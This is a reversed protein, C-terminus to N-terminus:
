IALNCSLRRQSNRGYQATPIGDTGVQEPSCRWRLYVRGIRWDRCQRWMDDDRSEKIRHCEDAVVLGVWWLESSVGELESEEGVGGM